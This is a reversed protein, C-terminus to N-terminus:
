RNLLTISDREVVRASKITALPSEEIIFIGSAIVQQMVSEVEAATLDARPQEITLKVPENVATLFTLEVVKAM